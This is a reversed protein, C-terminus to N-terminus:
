LTECMSCPASVPQRIKEFKNFLTEFHKVAPLSTMRRPTYEIFRGYQNFVAISCYNIVKSVLPGLSVPVGHRRRWSHICFIMNFYIYALKSASGYGVAKQTSDLYLIRTM